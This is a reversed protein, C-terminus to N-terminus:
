KFRVTALLKATLADGSLDYERPLEIELKIPPIRFTYGTNVNQVVIGAADKMAIFDKPMYPCEIIQPSFSDSM